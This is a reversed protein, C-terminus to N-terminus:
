PTAVREQVASAIAEELRGRSRCQVESGSVDVPRATAQVVTTLTTAGAGAPRVWSTVVPHVQYTDARPGNIGSGCDVWRSMREGGIRRARFRPSGLQGEAPEFTGLPIDMAEYTARLAEWTRDLPADIEADLASARTRLIASAAGEEVRTEVEQPAPPRDAPSSPAACASALLAAAAVASGIRRHVM